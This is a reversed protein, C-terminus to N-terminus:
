EWFFLFFIDLSRTISKHMNDNKINRYVFFFYKNVVGRSIAKGAKGETRAVLPPSFHILLTIKRQEDAATSKKIILFRQSFFPSNLHLCVSCSIFTMLCKNLFSHKIRHAPVLEVIQTRHESKPTVFHSNESREGQMHLRYGLKPGQCLRQFILWSRQRRNLRLGACTAIIIDAKM